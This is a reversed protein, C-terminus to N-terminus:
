GATGEQADKEGPSALELFLPKIRLKGTYFPHCRNCVEISVTGGKTSMLVFTNGCGCVFTTPEMPPHLDKKM